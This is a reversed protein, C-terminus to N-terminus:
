IEKGMRASRNRRDASIGFRRGSRWPRRSPDITMAVEFFGQAFTLHADPGLAQIQFYKDYRFAGQGEIRGAVHTRISIMEGCGVAKRLGPVTRVILADASTRSCKRQLTKVEVSCTPKATGAPHPFAITGGKDGM